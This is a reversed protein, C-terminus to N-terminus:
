GSSHDGLVEVQPDQKNFGGTTLDDRQQVDVKYGTDRIEFSM